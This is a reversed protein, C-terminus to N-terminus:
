ESLIRLQNGNAEEALVQFSDKEASSLDEYAKKYVFGGVMSWDDGWFDEYDEVSTFPGFPCSWEEGRQESENMQENIADPKYREVSTFEKQEEVPLKDFIDEGIFVIIRTDLAELRIEKRGIRIEFKKGPNWGTMAVYHHPVIKGENYNLTLYNLRSGGGSYETEPQEEDTPLLRIGQRGVKLEYCTNCADILEFYEKPIIIQYDSNVEVLYSLPELSNEWILIFV